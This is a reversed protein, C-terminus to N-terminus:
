QESISNVGISLAPGSVSNTASKPAVSTIKVALQEDNLVYGLYDYGIENEACFESFAKHEGNRWSPYNFYDDFQIVTGPVIQPGLVDLITKTSSYLDCDVHIFAIPEINEAAWQSLTESFWGKYLRVNEAVKPLQALGFAGRNFGSRWNEPLGEFSDFGHVTAKVRSAIFNITGGKYVGFECYSGSGRVEALSAELLQLKSRYSPAMPLEREIFSASDLAANWNRAIHLDRSCAYFYRRFIRQGASLLASELVSEFHGM